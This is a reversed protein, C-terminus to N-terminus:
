MIIVLLITRTVPWGEPVGPGWQEEGLTSTSSGGRYVSDADCGLTRRPTRHDAFTDSPRGGVNSGAESVETEASGAASARRRSGASSSAPTARLHVGGGAGTFDGAARPARGVGTWGTELLSTKEEKM